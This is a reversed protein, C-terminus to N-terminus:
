QLAAILTILSNLEAIRSNRWSCMAVLFKAYLPLIRPAAPDKKLHLVVADVYAKASDRFNDPLQPSNIASVAAYFSKEEGIGIGKLADRLEICGETQLLRVAKPDTVTKLNEIFSLVSM